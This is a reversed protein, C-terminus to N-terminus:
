VLAQGIFSKPKKINLFKLATATVDPLIGVPQFQKKLAKREKLSKDKKLSENVVIFPVPNTAHEKSPEGTAINKREEANGHDATLLLTGNLKKIEQFIKRLEKDVLSVAQVTAKFNGTHGVMDPNAFNVVLFTHRGEKLVRLVNETIQAASMGPAEAFSVVSPSPVLTRDEGRYKIDSGGNFFYTV